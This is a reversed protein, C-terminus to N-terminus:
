VVPAVDFWSVLYINLLMKVSLPPREEFVVQLQVFFHVSVRIIIIIISVRKWRKCHTVRVITHPRFFSWSQSITLM